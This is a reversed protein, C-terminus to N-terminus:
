PTSCTLLAVVTAPAGTVAEMSVRATGGAGASLFANADAGILNSAFISAVFATTVAMTDFLSKVLLYSPICLCLASSWNFVAPYFHM